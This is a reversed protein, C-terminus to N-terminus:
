GTREPIADLGGPTRRRVWFPAVIIARLWPEIGSVALQDVPSELPKMPIVFRMAAGIHEESGRPASRLEKAAREVVGFYECQDALRELELRQGFWM